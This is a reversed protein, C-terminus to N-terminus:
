QPEWVIPLTFTFVTGAGKESTVRATGGLAVVSAKVADLGIGRGADESVSERTSVKADFVHQILDEHSETSKLKERLADANIGAGDDAITIVMKSNFEGFGVDVSVNLAPLKGAAERAEPPEAAHDVINRAIHVLSEFFTKYVPAFVKVQGSAPMTISIDKEAMVAFFSLQTEFPILLERVQQAVIKQFFRFALGQAGQKRLEIGFDTVYRLPLTVVEEQIEFNNGWIEHGYGKAEAFLTSIAERCVELMEKTSVKEEGGLVTEMEHIIGAIANLHFFRSMGKLTHLDRSLEDHPRETPTGLLVAEMKRLYGVFAMKDKAIRLMRAIRAEKLRIEERSAEEKTIDEAILLISSLRGSPAYMPRYRLAVTLGRSHAFNKPALRMLDEFPFITTDGEFVVDILGQLQDRRDADLGLVDGVHRGGPESELLSLCAKSYVNSCLGKEDFFVLGVGLSDLVTTMSSNLMELRANAETLETSSLDLNRMAMKVRSDLEAYATDIDRLIAPLNSLLRPAGGQGRMETAIAEADAPPFHRRLQRALKKTLSM